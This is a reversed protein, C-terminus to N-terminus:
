PDTIKKRNVIKGDLRWREIEDDHEKTRWFLREQVCGMHFARVVGTGDPITFKLSWKAPNGAFDNVPEQCFECPPSESM